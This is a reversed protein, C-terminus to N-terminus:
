PRNVRLVERWSAPPANVDNPLFFFMLLMLGTIIENQASPPRPDQSGFYGFCTLWLAAIGTLYHASSSRHWFSAVSFLIVALGASFDSWMRMEGEAASFLWASIVLWIGILLEIIRPWM